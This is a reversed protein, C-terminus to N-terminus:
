MATKEFLDLFAPVSLNFFDVLFHSGIAWRLSGTYHYIAAWAVGMILTAVFVEPGSNVVSNIGFALHNLAFFTSTYLIAVWPKWHRTHDLLLGRWYGEEIWPNVLALVLWPVIVSWGALTDSHLLFVPLPILGVVLALALWGFSGKPKGLWRKYDRTKGYRLIFFLWLAWGTLIMPLFAWKGILRGFVVALLLNVFVILFPSAIVLKEKM